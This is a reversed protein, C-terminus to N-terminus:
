TQREPRSMEIKALEVKARLEIESLIRILGPDVFGEPKVRSIALLRNLKSAAMRGKLLGHRIDDLLDLMEDARVLAKRRGQSTEGDIEQLSLLSSVSAIPGMVAAGTTHPAKASDQAHDLSFGQRNGSGAIQNRRVPTSESRGSGNIKMILRTNTRFM